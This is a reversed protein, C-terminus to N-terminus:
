EYKILKKNINKPKEISIISNYNKFSQSFSTDVTTGEIDIGKSSLLAKIIYLSSKDIWLECKIKVKDKYGIDNEVFTNINKLTFGIKYCPSSDLIVEEISEIENDELSHIWKDLKILNNTHVRYKAEQEPEEYWVNIEFYHHNGISIWRDYVLGTREQATQNVFLRDPYSYKMEFKVNGYNNDELKSTYDTILLVTEYSKISSIKNLIENKLFIKAKTQDLDETQANSVGVVIINFCIIIIPILKKVM